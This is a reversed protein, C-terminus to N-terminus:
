LDNWSAQYNIEELPELWLCGKGQMGPMDLHFMLDKDKEVLSVANRGSCVDGKEEECSLLFGRQIFLPTFPCPNTNQLQFLKM